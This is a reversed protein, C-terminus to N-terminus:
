DSHLYYCDECYPHRKETNIISRFLGANPGNWLKELRTPVDQPPGPRQLLGYSFPNFMNCVTLETDWRVMLERWPRDCFTESSRRAHRINTRRGNIHDPVDVRLGYSEGLELARTFRETLEDFRELAWPSGDEENVMNFIIGGAGVDNAYEVLEEIEELNAEQITSLLLLREPESSVAEGVQRLTSSMRDFDAGCRLREFRDARTSDWSAMIVFGREVLSEYVSLPASLNTIIERIGDFGFEDLCDLYEDLEPVITTEGYGNIRLSDAGSGLVRVMEGFVELPMTREPLFGGTRSSCMGCAFNCSRTIEIHVTDPAARYLQESAVGRPEPDRYHELYRGVLEDVEHTEHFAAVNRLFPVHHDVFDEAPTDALSMMWDDLTEGAPQDFARRFIDRSAGLPKQTAPYSWELLNGLHERDAQGTLPLLEDWSLYAAPTDPHSLVREADDLTFPDSEPM